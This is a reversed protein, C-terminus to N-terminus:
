VNSVDRLMEVGSFLKNELLEVDRNFQLDVGFWQNSDASNPFALPSFIQNNEITLNSVNRAAIATKGWGRFINDSIEIRSLGYEAREVFQHGLRDMNFAVVGALYDQEFYRSSFGNRLCRNNQVLVNNAYLGIPWNSENHGAIASDSLGHYTSDLLQVDDAMVFQGYRRANSLTTGQVLFGKSTSSNYIATDNRFGASDIATPGSAFRFGDIPRDFTLTRTSLSGFQPHGFEVEDVATVRTQYLTTGTIPDVFTALDGVRWLNESVGRLSTTNVAAVTVQYTAPKGIIVSPVTYFNM